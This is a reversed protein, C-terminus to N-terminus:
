ELKLEKIREFHQTENARTNAGIMIFLPSQQLLFRQEQSCRHPEVKASSCLSTLFSPVYQSPYWTSGVFSGKRNSLDLNALIGPSLHYNGNASRQSKMATENDTTAKTALDKEQQADHVTKEWLMIMIEEMEKKKKVNKEKMEELAAAEVANKEKMKELAAAKTANKEKMKVLIEERM